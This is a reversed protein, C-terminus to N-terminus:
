HGRLRRVARDARVMHNAMAGRAACGVRTRRAIRLSERASADLVVDVGRALELLSRRGEITTTDLVVSRKNASLYAHLASSDPTAANPILPPLLRTSAGREPEVDIVDAGHDAFLKGCYSAAVTGGIDLVRIGALAQRDNM